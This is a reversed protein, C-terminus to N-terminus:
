LLAPQLDPDNVTREPGLICVASAGPPRAGSFPSSQLSETWCGGPYPLAPRSPLFLFTFYLRLSRRNVAARLARLGQEDAVDTCPLGPLAHHYTM